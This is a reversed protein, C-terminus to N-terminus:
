KAKQVGSEFASASKQLAKLADILSPERLDTLDVTHSQPYVFRVIRRGMEQTQGSLKVAAEYSATAEADSQPAGPKSGPPNGKGSPLAHRLNDALRGAYKGLERAHEQCVARARSRVDPLPNADFAAGALAPLDRALRDMRTLWDFIEDSFIKLRRKLQPDTTPQDLPPTETDDLTGFRSYNPDRLYARLEGNTWFSPPPNDDEPAYPKKERESRTPYIDIKFNKQLPEFLASFQQYSREDTIRCWIEMGKPHFVFVADVGLCLDIEHFRLWVDRLPPALERLSVGSIGTRRDASEGRALFSHAYGIVFVLTLIALRRTM